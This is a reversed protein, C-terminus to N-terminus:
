ELATLRKNTNEIHIRVAEAQQNLSDLRDRFEHLQDWILRLQARLMVDPIIGEYPYSRQGM